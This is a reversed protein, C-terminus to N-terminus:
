LAWPTYYPREKGALLVVVRIVRSVNGKYIEDVTTTYPMIIDNHREQYETFRETETQMQRM